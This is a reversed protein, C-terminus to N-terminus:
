NATALSCNVIKFDNKSANKSGDATQRGYSWKVGGACCNALPLQCNEISCLRMKKAVLACLLFGGKTDKHRQPMEAGRWILLDDLRFCVEGMSKGDDTARPRNDM